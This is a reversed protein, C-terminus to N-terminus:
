AAAFEGIGCRSQSWIMWDPIWSVLFASPVPLATTAWRTYRPGIRGSRAFHAALVASILALTDAPKYVRKDLRYLVTLSNVSYTPSSVKEPTAFLASDSWTIRVKEKGAPNVNWARVWPIQTLTLGCAGCKAPQMEGFFYRDLLFGTIFCCTRRCDRM